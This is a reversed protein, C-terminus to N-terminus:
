GRVDDDGKPKQYPEPIESTTSKAVEASPLKPPSDEVTTPSKEGNCEQRRLTAIDANESSRLLNRRQFVWWVTLAHNLLQLGAYVSAFVVMAYAIPRAGIGLPVRGDAAVVVITIVIQMFVWLVTWVHWDIISEAARQIAPTSRWESVIPLYFILTTLVFGMIISSFTLVDSFHSRLGDVISPDVRMWAYVLGTIVVSTWLDGDKWLNKNKAAKRVFIYLECYM